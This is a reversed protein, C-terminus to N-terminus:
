MAGPGVGLKSVVAAPTGYAERFDVAIMQTLRGELHSPAWQVVFSVLKKPYEAAALGPLTLVTVSGFAVMTTFISKRLGVRM